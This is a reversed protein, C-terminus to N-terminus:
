ISSSVQSFQRLFAGQVIEKLSAHTILVDILHSLAASIEEALKSKNQCISFNFFILPAENDYGLIVRTNVMSILSFVVLMHLFAVSLGGM